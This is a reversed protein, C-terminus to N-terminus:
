YVSTYVLLCQSCHSCLCRNLNLNISVLLRQYVSTSVLLCQYVSLSRSLIRLEQSTKFSPLPYCFLLNTFSHGNSLTTANVRRLGTKQPCETVRLLTCPLRFFKSEAYIETCLMWMQEQLPVPFCFSRLHKELRQKDM